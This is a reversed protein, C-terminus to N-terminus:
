GGGLEALGINLLWNAGEMRTQALLRPLCFSFSGREAGIAVAVEDANSGFGTGRLLVVTGGARPGHTPHISLVVPAFAGASHRKAKKPGLEQQRLDRLSADHPPDM